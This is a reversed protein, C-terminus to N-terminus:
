QNINNINQKYISETKMICRKVMRVIFTKNKQADPNKPRSRRTSRHGLLMLPPLTRGDTPVYRHEYMRVDTWLFNKRIETFHTHLYLDMVSARRYAMHGSGLDLDLDRPKQVEL